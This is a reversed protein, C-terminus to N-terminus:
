LSTIDIKNLADSFTKYFTSLYPSAQFSKAMEAGNTIQIGGGSRSVPSTRIALYTTIGPIGEEIGEAWSMDGEVWPMKSAAVIAELSPYQIEFQIDGNSFYKKIKAKIQTEFVARLKKVPKDGAEFGIFSFLDGTGGIFESFGTVGKELEINAPHNDFAELLAEQALEVALEVREKMFGSFLKAVKPDGKIESEIAKFNARYYGM